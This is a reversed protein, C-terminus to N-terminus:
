ASKRETLRDADTIPADSSVLYRQLTSRDDLLLWDIDDSLEPRRAKTTIGLSAGPVATADEAVSAPTAGLKVVASTAVTDEIQPDIALAIRANAAAGRAILVRALRNAWRDLEVNALTGSNTPVARLEVVAANRLRPQLQIVNTAPSEVLTSM